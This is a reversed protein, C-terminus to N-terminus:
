SNDLTIPILLYSVTIFAVRISEVVLSQATTVNEVFSIQRLHKDISQWSYEGGRADHQWNMGFMDNKFDFFSDLLM